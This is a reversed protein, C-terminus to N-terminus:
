AVTHDHNNLPASIAAMGSFPRYLLNLDVLVPRFKM